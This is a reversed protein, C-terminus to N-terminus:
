LLGEGFGIKGHQDVLDELRHLDDITDVTLELTALKPNGSEINHIKFRDPNRYFVSTVHERDHVTLQTSDMEMFTSAQILEANQGKPFTRPFVTTVVQFDDEEAYTVLKQLMASDLLPSDGNVRLIWDCPYKGICLRFREFVNDLSGRIVNVDLQELYAVLPDDSSENSTAVVVAERGLTEQVVRLVHIILPEHRFPALVKGPFRFSSMRAQIIALVRPIRM